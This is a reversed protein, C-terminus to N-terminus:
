RATGEAYVAGVRRIAGTGDRLAGRAAAARGLAARRAPDRLLDVLAAALAEPRAPPVLVADVGDTVLEAVGGATTAVVPLGLALAEMLVVPLGEHRSALCFVDFGAMVAPADARYGLFTFRDALGREDREAALTEALPGQGVAVFRTAPVATVVDAAAALLDPYGKTARLNAVTGVVLDDDGAGIEARAGARGSRRATTEAVEIGYRIVETDPRLRRPLSVRVAESVALHRERGRATLGDLLRTLRAHGDWVNHETTVLAPRRRGPLTARAIRVGIAALPSHVHVVAFGERGLLRRLRLIWRPDWGRTAGLCVAPVGAAELDPRLADKAPLLYAVTPRVNAGRHRASHVLLREAGGAGLGKVLWLVRIPDTAYAPRGAQEGTM